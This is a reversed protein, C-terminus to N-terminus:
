SNFIQDMDKVLFAILIETIIFNTPISWCRGKIQILVKVNESRRGNYPMFDM